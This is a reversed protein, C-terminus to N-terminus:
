SLAHIYISRAALDFRGPTRSNRTERATPTGSASVILASARQVQADHHGLALAERGVSATGPGFGPSRASRAQSAGM